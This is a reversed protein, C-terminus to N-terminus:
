NEADTNEDDSSGGAIGAFKDKLADGLTGMGGGGGGGGSSSVQASGQALYARYDIGQEAKAVAKISLGIKREEQDIDIIMVEVEGGIEVYKRPDDVHEDAIESVHILGEIGPEIEAFVGFDTIKTVKSKVRAGRPYEQPIRNWPDEHLQKIGLSFRENDVDINLVVAEVENGKEFMESPHKVRTTWSLDSIHVLGDIGEEIGVFIGFDTINRVQGRIVAGVPYKAGLLTWPNPEVQKMGLSIRKQEYDIDLVVAEVEDGINVLKSPHKVRKTWSMESVHILGEVGPVLEIFAGYDTLSVVKGSVRTGVPFKEHVTTWPDEQIQKLGLSVRENERDFKLVKVTVEDGVQFLESPHNVRGYSMDTIHLLGDIGGLDIFAGYETINKVVGKMVAEEALTQLTVKKQEEREKELLVRRSLVINGRKKNFKIVKFDFEEGILKDLNRIPRLDVQSGPLFAKVGIDVSLGGKVRAVIRGKVVEDAECAASIEDWVKLRDAKEKSLIIVGHDNERAEVLVDLSDGSKVRPSGDEVPFEGVPIMGESKYGVDVMVFDKTVEIVTGTVIEGERVEDRAYTQELLEAFSLNEENVATQTDMFSTPEKKLASEAQLSAKNLAEPGEHPLSPRPSAGHRTDDLTLPV